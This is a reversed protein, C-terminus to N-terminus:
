ISSPYKWLFRKGGQGGYKRDQFFEQRDPRGPQSLFYDGATRGSQAIRHESEFIREASGVRREGRYAAGSFGAVPLATKTRTHLVGIGDFFRRRISDPANAASCRCSTRANK